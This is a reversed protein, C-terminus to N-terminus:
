PTEQSYPKDIEIAFVRSANEANAEVQEPGRGSQSSRSGFSQKFTKANIFSLRPISVERLKPLFQVLDPALLALQQKAVQKAVKERLHRLKRRLRSKWLM